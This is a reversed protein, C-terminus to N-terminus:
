VRSNNQDAVIVRHRRDGITQFSWAWVYAKTARPAPSVSSSALARWRSDRRSRRGAGCGADHRASTSRRMPAADSVADRGSDAAARGSDAADRGADPLGRPPSRDDDSGCASAQVIAILTGAGLWRASRALELM